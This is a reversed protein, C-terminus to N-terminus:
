ISVAQAFLCLDTKAVSYLNSHRLSDLALCARSQFGSFAKVGLWPAEYLPPLFKQLPFSATTSVSQSALHRRHFRYLVMVHHILSVAVHGPCPAETLESLHYPVWSRPCKGTLPVCKQFALNHAYNTPIPNVRPANHFLASCVIRDPVDSHSVHSRQM